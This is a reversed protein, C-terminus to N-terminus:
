MSDATCATINSVETYAPIDWLYQPIACYLILCSQVTDGTGAPLLHHVTDGISWYIYQIHLALYGRQHYSQVIDGNGAPLLTIYRRHVLIHIHLALYGRQHYSQV